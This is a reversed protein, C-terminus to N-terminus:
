ETRLGTIHNAKLTNQQPNYELKQGIFTRVNSNDSARHSVTAKHDGEGRLILQQKSHDYTIKDAHGDLNRSEIRANDEAALSFTRQESNAQPLSIVWLKECRLVGAQPPLDSSNVIDIDITDGLRRVPGFVGEVHQSLQVLEKNLNGSLSGIFSAKAYVFPNESTQVAQNARAIVGPSVKLRNGRDPQTSEIWGPGSAVFDGSERNVTLDSFDAEHTATVVGAEMQKLTVHVRGVCRVESIDPAAKSDGDGAPAVDFENKAVDKGTRGSRSLRVDRTFDVQMGACTLHIDHSQGDSLVCRIDGVFSATRGSFIMGDAWYIDLPSPRELPMGDFGRDLVLRIRGSGDVSVKEDSEDVDIRQGEILRNASVVTAPSGFLSMGRGASLGNEATLVNGEAHFSQDPDPATYDVEVNGNIWIDTWDTPASPRKAQTSEPSLLTAEMTDSVFHMFGRAKDSEPRNGILQGPNSAEFSATQMTGAATPTRANESSAADSLKVTLQNRVDGSLQPAAIRVRDRAILEKPQLDSFDFANHTTDAASDISPPPINPDPVPNRSALLMEITQGALRFEKVPQIVQANGTLTIRPEPSQRFILSERWQAEITGQPDRDSKATASDSKDPQHRILGPGRLDISDLSNDELARAVIHPVLVETGKQILRIPFPNGNADQKNSWCELMRRDVIYRIDTMTGTLQQEEMYVVVRSGEARISHLEVQKPRQPGDSEANLAVHSNGADSSIRPRLQLTLQTCLLKDVFGNTLPREILIQRDPRPKEDEYGFFTSTLTQVDFHFGRAANITLHTAERKRNRDPILVNCTVRGNMHVSQIDSIAMLGQDENGSTLLKIEVGGEARATHTQWVLDVPSGSWIKMSKDSIHFNRGKIQLGDPGEIRVDGSLFGTTIRGFETEELDFPTSRDLQASAATVRIPQEDDEGSSWLMAVPKVRVSHKNNFLAVENFVLYRGGDRFKKGADSVWHDQPFWRTLVPAFDATRVVPASPASMSQRTREINLWPSTFRAYAVYVGLLFLGTLLTRPGRSLERNSM